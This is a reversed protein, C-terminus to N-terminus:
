VHLYNYLLFCTSILYFRKYTDGEMVLVRAKM